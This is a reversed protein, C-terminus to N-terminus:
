VQPNMGKEVKSRKSPAGSSNMVIKTDLGTFLVVGIVWDTNRIVSGRLLVTQLDIPQPRAAGASAVKGNLRYMNEDPSPSDITFTALKPDACARASRLNTLAAVASRSKLNTEGDLNKTEVYAVNEEESSSCIVIDAPVQENNLIKVFDGVRLDEWATSVWGYGDGSEDPDDLASPRNRNKIEQMEVDSPKPKRRLVGRVFTKSKKGTHNPNEWGSAQLVHVQSHNVRRDSQHRKVDEYGDKLATILLVVLIPIVVLGPSITSFRPFFQLIAIAAFFSPPYHAISTYTSTFISSSCM